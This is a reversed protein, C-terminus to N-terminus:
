VRRVPHGLRRQHLEAGHQLDGHIRDGWTCRGHNEQSSSTQDSSGSHKLVVYRACQVDNQCCFLDASDKVTRHVVPAVQGAGVVGCPDAKGISGTAGRRGIPVITANPLVVGPNYEAFTPNSWNNISGNYIGVMQERTLVLNTVGPINYALVIARYDLMVMV